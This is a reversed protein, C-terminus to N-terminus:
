ICDFILALVMACSRGPCVMESISIRPKMALHQGLPTMLKSRRYRVGLPSRRRGFIEAGLEHLEDVLGLAVAGSDVRDNVAELRSYLADAHPV